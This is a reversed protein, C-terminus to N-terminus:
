NGQNAARLTIRAIEVGNPLTLVVVSGDASVPNIGNRRFGFHRLGLAEQLDDIARQHKLLEQQKNQIELQFSQREALPCSQYRQMLDKLQSQTTNYDAKLSDLNSTVGISPGLPDYIVHLVVDGHTLAPTGDNDITSLWGAPVVVNVTANAAVAMPLPLKLPEVQNLPLSSSQISAFECTAVVRDKGDEVEVTAYKLLAITKASATRDTWQLWLVGSDLWMKGVAGIIDTGLGRGIKHAVLLIHSPDSQQSILSSSDFPLVKLSTGKLGEGLQQPNSVGDDGWQPSALDIVSAAPQKDLRELLAANESQLQQYGRTSDALGKKLESIKLELAKNIPSTFSQSDTADSSPTSTPEDGWSPVAIACTLTIIFLTTSLSRDMFQFKGDLPM